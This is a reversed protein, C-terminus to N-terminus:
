GRRDRSFGSGCMGSMNLFKHVDFIKDRVSADQWDPFNKVFAGSKSRLFFM